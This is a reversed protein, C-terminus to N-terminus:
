WQFYAIILKIIILFSYVKKELLPYYKKSKLDDRIAKPSEDFELLLTVLNKLHTLNKKLDSTNNKIMSQSIMWKISGIMDSTNSDGNQIERVIFILEKFIIQM